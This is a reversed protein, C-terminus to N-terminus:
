WLCKVKKKVRINPYAMSHATFTTFYKSTAESQFYKIEYNVTTLMVEVKRGTYVQM